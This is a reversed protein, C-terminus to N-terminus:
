SLKRHSVRNRRNLSRTANMYGGCGSYGGESGEEASNSSSPPIPTMGLIAYTKNEKADDRAQMTINGEELDTKGRNEYGSTLKQIQYTEEVLTEEARKKVRMDM